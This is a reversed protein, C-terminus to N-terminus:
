SIYGMNSKRNQPFIQQEDDQGVENVLGTQAQNAKAMMQQELNKILIETDKARKNIEDMNVNISLMGTITELIRKSANADIVYGSTEGLLCLGDMGHLKGLGIIIGNMGTINGTDLSSVNHNRFTKVLNKNTATGFVRPNKTFTGTVYAALSYINSIRFKTVIDLIEETLVYESGPVIPQSDGTLLILDIPSSFSGDDYAINNKVPLTNDSNMHQVKHQFSENKKPINKKYKMQKNETKVYYISNKVIESTGDQKITIQPSYFSSFIDAFHVASLQKILYDIAVKGVFGTGPFGCILSPNELSPIKEKSYVTKIPNSYSFM